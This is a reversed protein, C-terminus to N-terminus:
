QVCPRAPLTKGSGALSLTAAAGDVYSIAISSGSRIAAWLRAFEGRKSDSDIQLGGKGGARMLITQGAAKFGVQEDGPPLAGRIQVSVSAHGESPCSIILNTAKEGLPGVSYEHVGQNFGTSWRSPLAMLPATVILGTMIALAVKM